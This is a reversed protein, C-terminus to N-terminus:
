ALRSSSTRVSHASRTRKAKPMSGNSRASYEARLSGATAPTCRCSMITRACTNDCDISSRAPHAERAALIAAAKAPGVGPVDLLDQLGANLTGRIGGFRQLLARALEVASMGRHGQGLWGALIEADALGAPRSNDGKQWGALLRERPREHSPWDAINPAKM